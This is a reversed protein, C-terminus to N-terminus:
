GPLVSYSIAIIGAAYYMVALQRTMEDADAQQQRYQQCYRTLEDISLKALSEAFIRLINTIIM